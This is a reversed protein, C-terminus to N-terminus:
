AEGRLPNLVGPRRHHNAHMYIGLWLRNGLWFWGRDLNVPQFSGTPSGADHTVWNFHVLHLFGVVSAPVFLGFFAIPGLLRYWVAVLLLNTAYSNWARLREYRRNAPTDGWRELYMAQLQVEVNVVTHLLFDWYGARLPHPDRVPDDAYRHHRLHVIEWSAFRTLAIAACLEGVLRNIPRPLSRHTTVHVLTSALIQLHCAFPLLVPVWRVDDLLPPLDAADLAILAAVCGLAWAADYRLYFHPDRRFAATPTRGGLAARLADSPM